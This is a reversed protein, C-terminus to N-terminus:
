FMFTPVGGGGMPHVPVLGTFGQQTWMDSFQRWEVHVDECLINAGAPTIGNLHSTRQVLDTIGGIQIKAYSYPAIADKAIVDVVVEADSASLKGPIGIMNTKWWPTEQYKVNTM